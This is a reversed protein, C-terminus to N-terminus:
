TRSVLGDLFESSGVKALALVSLKELGGKIQVPLLCLYTEVIPREVLM